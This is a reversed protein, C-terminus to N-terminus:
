GNERRRADPLKIYKEILARAADFSYCVETKYGAGRLAELWERQEQSLTGRGYKMEIALGIYGGHATPLIIDPVGKKLGMQKLRSGTIVGRKGENPVHFMLKLEPHINSAIEAWQFLLIQEKDESSLNVNAMIGGGDDENLWDQVCVECSEPAYTVCRRIKDDHNIGAVARIPCIGTNQEIAMMLDHENRKTIYHERYTM